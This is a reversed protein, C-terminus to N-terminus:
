FDTYILQNDKDFYSICGSQDLNYNNVYMVSVRNRGKQLYQVPLILQSGERKGVMKKANVELEEIVDGQFDITISPFNIHLLSFNLEALGYYQKPQLIINYSYTISNKKLITSRFIATSHDLSM